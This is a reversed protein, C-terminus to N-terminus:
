KAVKGEQILRETARLLVLGIDSIEEDSLHIAITNVAELLMRVKSIDTM